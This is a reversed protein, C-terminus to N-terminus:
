APIVVPKPSLVPETITRMTGTQGHNNLGWCKAPGATTLACTTTVSLAVDTYTDSDAVQTPGYTVGLTGIGTEGFPNEGWCDIHGTTTVACTSVDGVEIATYRHDGTVPTPVQSPTTPGASTGLWSSSGWCKAIGSVTVVCTHGGVSASVIPEGVDVTEWAVVAPTNDRAYHVIDLCRYEHAQTIGCMAQADFSLYPTTDLIPTPVRVEYDNTVATGLTGFFGNEGWCKVQGATTVGCVSESTYTNVSIDTYSDTDAVPTPVPVNVNYVIGSGLSGAGTGWCQVQGATTIACAIEDGVAVKVYRDTSAVPVPTKVVLPLGGGYQGVGLEGINYGWCKLVGTDLVGCTVDHGADIQTYHEAIVPVPPPTDDAPPAPAACAAAFGAVM